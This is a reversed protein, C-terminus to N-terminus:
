GGGGALPLREVRRGPGVAVAFADRLVRRDLAGAARAVGQGDGGTVVWLPPQGPPGLAAVLGAGPGETRVRAGRQDMLALQRGDSRYRAFVGSRRPGREIARLATVRRAASWRAVVVRPGSGSTARDLGGRAVRAGARDLTRAVRRCVTGAPIECALRVRASGNALPRPFAGVIARVDPVARWYRYDWQVADGPHLVREAAGSDGLLGNVYFFWDSRGDAAGGGLGDISRVFGGGYRTKVTRTGRLQRLITEDERVSRARPPAVQRRGFDRTVSLTADAGKQTDGSGLGCGAWLVAGLAMLGSFAAPAVGSRVPM